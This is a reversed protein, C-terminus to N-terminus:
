ESGPLWRLPMFEISYLGIKAKSFALPDEGLMTKAAAIIFNKMPKFGGNTTQLVSLLNAEGGFNNAQSSWGASIGNNDTTVSKGNNPNTYTGDPNYWPYTSPYNGKWADISWPNVAAAKAPGTDSTLDGFIKTQFTRGQLLFPTEPTGDSSKFQIENGKMANEWPQGSPGSITPDPTLAGGMYEFSFTAIAEQPGSGPQNDKNNLGYWKQTHVAGPLTDAKYLSSLDIEGTDLDVYPAEIPAYFGDTFKSFARSTQNLKSNTIDFGRGDFPVIGGANQPRLFIDTLAPSQAGKLYGDSGKGKISSYGLFHSPDYKNDDLNIFDNSITKSVIRWILPNLITNAKFGVSTSINSTNIPPVRM